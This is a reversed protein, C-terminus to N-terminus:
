QQKKLLSQIIREEKEKRRRKSASKQLKIKGQRLERLLKIIEDKTKNKDEM